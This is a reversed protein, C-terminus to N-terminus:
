LAGITFLPKAILPVFGPFPCLMTRTHSLLALTLRDAICDAKGLRRHFMCPHSLSPWKSAVVDDSSVRSVVPSWLGLPDAGRECRTNKEVHHRSWKTGLVARGLAELRVRFGRLPLPESASQGGV